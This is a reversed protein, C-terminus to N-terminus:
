PKLLSYLRVTEIGLSNTWKGVVFGVGIQFITLDSPTVVDGLYIGEPDFVRWTVETEQPRRFERVWLNQDADLLLRDYPPFYEPFITNEVIRSVRRSHEKDDPKQSIIEDRHARIDSDNIPVPEFPWHILKTLEGGLSFMQIVYQEGTGIFIGTTGIAHVTSRGLPQPKTGNQTRYRADARFEGLILETQGYRDAISVPASPEYPGVPQTPETRPWGVVVFQGIESCSLSYPPRGTEDWQFEFSRIFQGADTLVSVRKLLYDYVFVSDPACEYLSEITRFEGPGAGERGRISQLRGDASYFRVERAFADAVAFRGTPLRVAGVISGFQQPDRGEESGIEIAPADALRWNSSASWRPTTNRLTQVGTLDWATLDPSSNVHRAKDECSILVLWLSVVLPVTRM